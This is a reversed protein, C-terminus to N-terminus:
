IIAIHQAILVRFLVASQVILGFVFGGVGHVDCAGASM